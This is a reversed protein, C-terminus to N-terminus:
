LESTMLLCSVQSWGLWRHNNPTLHVLVTYWNISLGVIAQVSFKKEFSVVEARIIDGPRFSTHVDVKDIETARVDQQRCDLSKMYLFQLDNDSIFSANLLWMNPIYTCLLEENFTIRKVWHFKEDPTPGRHIEMPQKPMCFWDNREMHHMSPPLTEIQISLLKNKTWQLFGRKLVEQGALILKLRESGLYFIKCEFRWM